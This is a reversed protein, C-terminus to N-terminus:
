RSPRVGGCLRLRRSRDRLSLLWDDKLRPLDRGSVRSRNLLPVRQQNESVGAERAGRFSRLLWFRQRRKRGNGRLHWPLLASGRFLAPPRDGGPEDFLQRLLPNVRLGDEVRFFPGLAPLLISPELVLQAVLDPEKGLNAINEVCPETLSSAENIALELLPGSLPSLSGPQVPCLGAETGLGGPIAQLRCYDEGPRLLPAPRGKREVM